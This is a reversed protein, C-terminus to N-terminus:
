GAAAGQRHSRLSEVVKLAGSKVAMDEATLGEDNKVSPDAGAALLAEAMKVNDDMAAAQLATYGGQQQVNPDAGAALVLKVIATDGSASSSHIVAIRNSSVAKADAGAALLVQTAELQRFFCALHLPTFSDNSRSNVQTADNGLLAHLRAVDGLAAAEYLDLPGVACRLSDVVEPKNEYVAQMLASVGNASRARAVQPDDAILQRITHLDSEHIATFIDAAM